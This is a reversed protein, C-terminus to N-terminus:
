KDNRPIPNFTHLELKKALYASAAEEKSHFRGVHIRAGKIRIKSVWKGNSFHVGMHGSKNRPGITINQLNEAQTCDRLNAWSNNEGNGDIHDVNCLPLIGTMFLFALRHALYLEGNFGIQIYGHSTRTGAQSGKKPKKGIPNTWIFVGSGPDYSLHNQIDM